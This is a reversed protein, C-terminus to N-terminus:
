VLPDGNDAKQRRLGVEWGIGAGLGFAKWEGM